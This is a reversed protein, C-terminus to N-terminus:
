GVPALRPGVHNIRIFDRHVLLGWAKGKAPAPWNPDSGVLRSVRELPDTNGTRTDWIWVRQNDNAPAYLRSQSRGYRKVFFRADRFESMKAFAAERKEKSPYWCFRFRNEAFYSALLKQLVSDTATARTRLLFADFTADSLALYDDLDLDQAPRHAFLARLVNRCAASEGWDFKGEADLEAIRRFAFWLAANLLTSRENLYVTEYMHYRGILFNEIATVAPSAFCIRGRNKDFRAWHLLINADIAGFAFGTYHSDRLLYDTRDMDLESSVLQMMWPLLNDGKRRHDILAAVREPDVDHKELLPRINGKPNLILRVSMTEHAFPRVSDGADNVTGFYDEFAHSHPGHGVDHLLAAALLTQRDRTAISAFSPNQLMRRTVEFVGLCHSGRTHTAGPFVRSTPGLQKIDLVRAFEPMDYVDRLWHSDRDFNIEGHIPDKIFRNAAGRPVSSNAHM